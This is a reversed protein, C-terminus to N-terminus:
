NLIFAFVNEMLRVFEADEYKSESHGMGTYFSVGGDPREWFHATMRPDDYTNEGTDSVRLLETFSGSLFGGEWYYWEENDAWPFAIGSTLQSNENQVNVTAAFNNATHNPGNRVSCGTVNEAYWDWVGKGNGSVTSATSHGYADSAAHNSIFHGGQAAYAEVNERQSANLFDGSTNSFFLIDFRSLNSLSDFESGDNDSVVDFNQAVGIEEVMSVSESETRHNFGSTKTLILVIPKSDLAQTTVSEFVSRASENGSVDIASVEFTYTTATDLDMVTFNTQSVQSLQTGDQYVFYGSVANNDTAAQWNLEVSTETINSVTLGMPATPAETDMELM